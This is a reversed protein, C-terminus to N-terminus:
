HTGRRECERAQGLDGARGEGAVESAFVRQRQRVYGRYGALVGGYIDVTNQDGTTAAIGDNSTGLVGGAMSVDPGINGLNLKLITAANVAVGNAFIFACAAASLLIPRIKSIM